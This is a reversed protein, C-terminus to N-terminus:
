KAPRSHGRLLGHPNLADLIRRMREIDQTDSAFGPSDSAHILIGSSLQETRIDSPLHRRATADSLYTLWGIRVSGVPQNLLNQVESRGVFAYKPEWFRVCLELITRATQPSELEPSIAIIVQNSSQSDPRGASIRVSLEVNATDSTLLFSAPFLTRATSERTFKRNDTGPTIFVYEKPLAAVVENDFNSFDHDIVGTSERPDRVVRLTSLAPFTSVLKTVFSRAQQLFEGGRLPRDYWYACVTLNRSSYRMRM